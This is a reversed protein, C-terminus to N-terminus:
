RKAAPSRGSPRLPELVVCGCNPCSGGRRTMLPVALRRRRFPSRWSSRQPEAQTLEFEAKIGGSWVGALWAGRLRVLGPDM